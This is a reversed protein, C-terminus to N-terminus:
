FLISVRDSVDPSEPITVAVEHWSKSSKTFSVPTSPVDFVQTAPLDNDDELVKFVAPITGFQITAGNKLPYPIYPILTQM